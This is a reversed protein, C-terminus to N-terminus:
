LGLQTRYNKITTGSWKCKGDKRRFKKKTFFTAIAYDGTIGQTKALIINNRVRNMFIKQKQKKQKKKPKKKTTSKARVDLEAEWESSFNAEDGRDIAEEIITQVKQYSSLVEGYQAVTLTQRLLNDFYQIIQENQERIMTFGDNIYDEPIEGMEISCLDVDPSIWGHHAHYAPKKFFTEVSLDFKKCLDEHTLPRQFVQRWEVSWTYKYSKSGSWFSSEYDYWHDKGLVGIAIIQDVNARLDVSIKGTPNLLFFNEIKNKLMGQCARGRPSVRGESLSEKLHHIPTGKENGYRITIHM